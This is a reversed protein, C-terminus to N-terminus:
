SARMCFDYPVMFGSTSTAFGIVIDDDSANTLHPAGVAGAMAALAVLLLQWKASIM